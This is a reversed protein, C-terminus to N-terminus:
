KVTIQGTNEVVISATSGDASQLVIRAEQYTRDSSKIGSTDCVLKGAPDDGEHAITGVGDAGICADPEPRLFDIDVQSHGCTEKGTYDTVCLDKVRYGSALSYRTVLEGGSGLTGGDYHGNPTVDAYLWYFDNTLGASPIFHVGYANSFEKTTAQRVSIGYTQAERVSLAVDYALSRLIIVGGFASNRTLLVASLIMIIATVVLLEM